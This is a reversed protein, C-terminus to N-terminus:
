ICIGALIRDGAGVNKRTASAIVHLNNRSGQLPCSGGTVKGYHVQPSAATPTCAGHDLCLLSRADVNSDNSRLLPPPVEVRASQIEGICIISPVCPKGM